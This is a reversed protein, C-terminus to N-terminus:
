SFLFSLDEYFCSLHGFIKKGRDEITNMRTMNDTFNNQKTKVDKKSDTGSITMSANFGTTEQILEAVEKDFTLPYLTSEREYDFQTSINCYQISEIDALGKLVGKKINTMSATKNIANHRFNKIKTKLLSTNVSDSYVEKELHCAVVRNIVDRNFYKLNIRQKEAIQSAILYPPKFLEVKSKKSNTNGLSFKQYVDFAMRRKKLKQIVKIIQKEDHVINKINRLAIKYNDLGFSAFQKVEFEQFLSFYIDLSDYFSKKNSIINRNNFEYFLCPTITVAINTKSYTTLFNFIMLEAISRIYRKRNNVSHKNSQKYQLDNLIQNDIILFWPEPMGFIFELHNSLFIFDQLLICKEQQNLEGIINSLKSSIKPM